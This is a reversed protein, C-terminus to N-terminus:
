FVSKVAIMVAGTLLNHDYLFSLWVSKEIQLLLERGGPTGAFVTIFLGALWLFVLGEVGGLVAGAIKNVGSIIPLRAVLDLWVTIIRIGAFVIVFLILFGIVRIMSNALYNSLYEAFTEVGLLRYVENNNNEILSKKLQNPLSLNEIISRQESPQQTLFNEDVGVAKKMNEEFTEYIKTNEKLFGTVQPLAAHVLFISGFLAFASVVLRIFGKYHGYLIMGLLFVGAVISLWNEM